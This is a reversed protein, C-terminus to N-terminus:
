RADRPAAAAADDDAPAAAGDDGSTAAAAATGARLRASCRSSWADPWCCGARTSGCRAAATAAAASGHRDTSGCWADAHQQVKSGGTAAAAAAAAAAGGPTAATRGCCGSPQAAAAAAAHGHCATPCQRCAVAAAAPAPAAAAGASSGEEQGAAATQAHHAQVCAARRCVDTVPVGVRQPQQHRGHRAPLGGQPQGPLLKRVCLVGARRAVAAHALQHREPVAPPAAAVAAPGLHGGHRAHGGGPQGQYFGAPWFRTRPGTRSTLTCPQLASWSPRTISAPSCAPRPTQRTPGRSRCGAPTSHPACWSWTHTACPEQDTMALVGPHRAAAAPPRAGGPYPSKSLAIAEALAHPLATGKSSVGGVFQIGDLWTFLQKLSPTWGSVQIPAPTSRDHTAYVILAYQSRPMAQKSAPSAAGPRTDQQQGAAAGGKAASEAAAAAQQEADKEMMQLISDLWKRTGRWSSTAAATAEVLLIVRTPHATPPSSNAAAPEFTESGEAAM